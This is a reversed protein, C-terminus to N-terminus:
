STACRARTCMPVLRRMDLVSIRGDGDIDVPDNPGSAPDGLYGRIINIDDLDVDGDGDLDGQIDCSPGLLDSSLLALFSDGSYIKGGYAPQAGGAVGCLNDSDTGGNLYVNGNYELLEGDTGGVLDGLEFGSGGYYTSQILTTLDSSLRAVYTDFDPSVTAPNLHYLYQQRGIHQQIGGQVGPLDISDTIGFMYLDGNHHFGATGADTGSGGFYTAQELTTLDASLKAVYADSGGGSTPQAGGATGPFDDSETSGSQYVSSGAVTFVLAEEDGSGGLYTAQTLTTLDDPILAIYVDGFLLNNYNPPYASGGYVPQAGGATGPFDDSRTYGVVYFSSAGASELFILADDDTGGLYTTQVISTLDQSLRAIFGDGFEFFGGGAFAPQYGGATGPLDDSMTYGAIFIGNGFHLPQRTIDNTQLWGDEDESGGFYTSQRLTTLDASILAVFVDGSYTGGSYTSQAGGSSAPLDPSTTVGTIYIDGSNDFTITSGTTDEGGSGGFYTSQVLTTLDSSLRAIFIDGSGDYTPQAGGTTGPFDNSTTDGAM